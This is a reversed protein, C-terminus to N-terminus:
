CRKLSQSAIKDGVLLDLIELVAKNVVEVFCKQCLRLRFKLLKGKVKLM